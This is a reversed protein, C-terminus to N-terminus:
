LFKRLKQEIPIHFYFPFFTLHNNNNVYNNNDISLDKQDGGEKALADALDNYLNDSHGKVKIYSVKLFKESIIAVIKSIWLVNTTKLWQRTYTRNDKNSSSDRM